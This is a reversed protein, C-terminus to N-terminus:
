QKSQQKTEPTNHHIWTENVTIFTRLFEDMNLKFLALCEKSTTVRNPNKHDITLLCPVWRTFLKRMGLQDNLISLMSGHSIDKAEVIEQVKLRWDASVM